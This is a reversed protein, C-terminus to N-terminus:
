RPLNALLKDCKRSFDPDAEDQRLAGGESFAAAAVIINGLFVVAGFIHLLLHWRYSYVPLSAIVAIAMLSIHLRVHAPM